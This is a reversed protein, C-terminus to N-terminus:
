KIKVGDIFRVRFARPFDKKIKKEIQEIENIDTTNGYTYKYWGEENYYSAKYGKLDPSKEPLRKKVALIQVKYVVKGQTSENDEIISSPTSAIPESTTAPKNEVLVTQESGSKSTTTSFSIKRDLDKKYQTFANFLSNAFSQQGKNSILYAEEELNSIFGLEVLVSPMFSEKLVLFGAQKVGRDKDARNSSKTFEDQIMSAL